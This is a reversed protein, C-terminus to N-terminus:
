RGPDRESSRQWMEWRHTGRPHVFPEESQSPREGIAGAHADMARRVADLPHLGPTSRLLGAAYRSIWEASPRALQSDHTAM